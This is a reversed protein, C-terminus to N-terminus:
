SGFTSKRRKRKRRRKPSHVEANGDMSRKQWHNRQDEVSTPRLSVDSQPVTDSYIHPQREASGRRHKKRKRKKRYGSRTRSRSSSSVKTQKQWGMTGLAYAYAIYWYNDTFQSHDFFSFWLFVIVFPSILGFGSQQGAKILLIVLWAFVLLGAVGYTYWAQLMMNHANLDLDREVEYGYGFVPRQLAAQLTVAAIDERALKSSDDFENEDGGRLKAFVDLREMMSEIQQENEIFRFLVGEAVTMISSYSVAVLLPVLLMLKSLKRAYVFYAGLLAWCVMGSRSFTVLVALGCLLYVPLVLWRPLKRHVIALWLLTAETAQNANFYTGASRTSTSSPFLDTEFFGLLLPIPVLVVALLFFTDIFRPKCVYCILGFVPLLLAREIRDVAHAIDAPESNPDYYAIRFYTILYLLLLAGIWIGLPSFIFHRSRSFTVFFLLVGLVLQVLYLGPANTADTLRDLWVPLNPYMVLVMFASSVVMLSVILIRRATGIQGSSSINM